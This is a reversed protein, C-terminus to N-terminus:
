GAVAQHSTGITKRRRRGTCDVLASFGHAHERADIEHIDADYPVGGKKIAGTAAIGRNLARAAM